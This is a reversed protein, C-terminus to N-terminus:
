QMSLTNAGGDKLVIFDGEGLKEPLIAEKTVFDGQFCLPGAIQFMKTVGGSDFDAGDARYAEIRRAHEKTYVQRVCLDAGFHVVAIPKEVTGKFWEIRSALFGSKAFM